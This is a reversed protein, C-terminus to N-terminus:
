ILKCEWWCYILTRKEGCRWWYKTNLHWKSIKAKIEKFHLSIAWNHGVRQLGMSPLRCWPGRDMPNELCSYQLPNGNGEGPFRGSESISGLDGANYTSAKGDSGGPFDKIEKLLCEFINRCNIDFFIRSTNVELLKITELM